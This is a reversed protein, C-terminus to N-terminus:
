TCNYPWWAGVVHWWAGGRSMINVSLEISAKSGVFRGTVQYEVITEDKFIIHPPQPPLTCHERGQSSANYRPFMCIDLMM